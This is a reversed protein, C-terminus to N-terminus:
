ARADLPTTPSARRDGQGSSVSLTELILADRYGAPPLRPDIMAYEVIVQYFLSRRVVFTDRSRASL